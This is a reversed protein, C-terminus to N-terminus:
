ARETLDPEAPLHASQHHLRLNTKLGSRIFRGVCQRATPGAASSTDRDLVIDGAAATVLERARNASGCIAGRRRVCVQYLAGDTPLWM